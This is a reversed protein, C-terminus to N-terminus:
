PARPSRAAFSRRGTGACSSRSRGRRRPALRAPLRHLHLPRRHDRGPARRAALSGPHVGGGGRSQAGALHRRADHAARRGRLGRRGGGRAGRRARARVRGRHALDPGRERGRPRGPELPRRRGAPGAPPASRSRRAHRNRHPRGPVASGGLAALEMSGGVPGLAALAAADPLAPAPRSDSERVEDDAMELVSRQKHRVLWRWEREGESVAEARHAEDAAREGVPTLSLTFLADRNPLVTVRQAASPQHGTGIARLTYSGAPLSPLAFHGPSDALTVLSGGRIGKGFISVVAGAVPAGRTSEVWGVLGGGEDASAGACVVPHVFVSAVVAWGIRRCSSLGYVEQPIYAGNATEVTMLPAPRTLLPSGAGPRPRGARRSM